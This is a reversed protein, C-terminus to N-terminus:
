SAFVTWFKLPTWQTHGLGIWGSEVQGLWAWGLELGSTLQLPPRCGCVSKSSNQLCNQCVNGLLTLFWPQPRFPRHCPALLEVFEVSLNLRRTRSPPKQSKRPAKWRPPLLGSTTTTGPTVSANERSPTVAYTGCPRNWGESVDFVASGTRQRWAPFSWSQGLWAQSLDFEDFFRMGLVQFWESRVGSERILLDVVQWFRPHRYASILLYSSTSFGLHRGGFQM